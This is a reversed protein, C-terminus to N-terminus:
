GGAVPPIIALEDGSSLRQEATAYELNVAVLPASPLGAGGPMARLVDVADRVTTGSDLALEV